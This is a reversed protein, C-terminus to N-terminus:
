VDICHGIPVVVSSGRAFFYDTANGLPPPFHILTQPFLLVSPLHPFCSVFLCVEEGPAQETKEKEGEKEKDKDGGGFFFSGLEALRGARILRLLNICVSCLLRSLVFSQCASLASTEYVPAGSEGLFNARLLNKCAFRM